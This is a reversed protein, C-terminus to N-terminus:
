GSQGAELTELTQQEDDDDGLVSVYIRAHRLDKSMRVETVTAFGLRPDKVENALLDALEMRLQDGVRQRRVQSSM